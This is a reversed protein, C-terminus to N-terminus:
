ATNRPSDPASSAPSTPRSKWAASPRSLLLPLPSGCEMVQRLLQPRETGRLTKSHPQGRGSETGLIGAGESAQRGMAIAVVRFRDGKSEEATSTLWLGERTVEGEMRQFVCHLRAGDAAARVSLGDGKYQKEVTAGIQDLPIASRNATPAGTATVASPLFMLLALVFAPAWGGYCCQPPLVLEECDMRKAINPQPKPANCEDHQKAAVPRLSASLFDAAPLRFEKIGSRNAVSCAQLKQGFM